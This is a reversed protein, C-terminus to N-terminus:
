FTKTSAQKVLWHVTLTGLGMEQATPHVIVGGIVACNLRLRTEYGTIGAYSLVAQHDAFPLEYWTGVVSAGLKHAKVDEVTLPKMPAELTLAALDALSPTWVLSTDQYLHPNDNSVIEFKEYIM